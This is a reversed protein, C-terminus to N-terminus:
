CRLSLRMKDHICVFCCARVHSRGCTFHRVVVYWFEGHLTIINNYQRAKYAHLATEMSILKFSLEKKVAVKYAHM